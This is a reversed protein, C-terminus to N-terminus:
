DWWQRISLPGGGNNDSLEPDNVRFELEGPSARRTDYFWCERRHDAGVEYGPHFWQNAEYWGMRSAYIRGTTVRALLSYQPQGPAPFPPRAVIHGDGIFSKENGWYSSWYKDTSGGKLLLVDGGLLDMPQAWREIYNARMPWPASDEFQWDRNAECRELAASPPPLLRGGREVEVYGAPLGVPVSHGWEDVVWKISALTAYDNRASSWYTHLYLPIRPNVSTWGEFRVFNYTVGAEVKVAGVLRPDWDPGSALKYDGRLEGYWQYLRPGAGPPWAGDDPWREPNYIHGEMANLVYDRWIGETDACGDLRCTWRPDSTTFFDGRGPSYFSVMPITEAQACASNATIGLLCTAVCRVLFAKSKRRWFNDVNM